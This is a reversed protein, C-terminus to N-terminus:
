AAAPAGGRIINAMAMLVMETLEAETCDYNTGVRVDFTGSENPCVDVHFKMFTRHELQAVLPQAAAENDLTIIEISTKM